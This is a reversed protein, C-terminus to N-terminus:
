IKKQEEIQEKDYNRKSMNEKHLKCGSLLAIVPIMYNGVNKFLNTSMKWKWVDKYLETDDIYLIYYLLYVIIQLKEDKKVLDITELLISKFDM